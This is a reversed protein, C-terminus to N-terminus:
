NQVHEEKKVFGVLGGGRLYDDVKKRIHVRGRTNLAIDPSTVKNGSLSFQIVEGAKIDRKAKGIPKDQM